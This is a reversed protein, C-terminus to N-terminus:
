SDPNCRKAAHKKGGNPRAGACAGLDCHGAFEALTLRGLQTALEREIGKLLRGLPCPNHGLPRGLLCADSQMPGEVIEYIKRLSLQGAPFALLFGGAPGRRGRVLGSRELRQMVKALHAESLGLSGAIERSSSLRGPNKTLYVLAHLALSAAESVRLM